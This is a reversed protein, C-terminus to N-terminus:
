HKRNGIQVNPPVNGSLRSEPRKFFIFGLTIRPREGRRVVWIAGHRRVVALAPNVKAALKAEPPSLDLCHPSREGNVGSTYWSLQGCQGFGGKPGM